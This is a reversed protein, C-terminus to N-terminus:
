RQSQLSPPKRVQAGPATKDAEAISFARSATSYARATAPGRRSSLALAAVVRQEAGNRLGTLHQIYPVTGAVHVVGIAGPAEDEAAEIFYPLDQGLHDELHAHVAREEGLLDNAREIRQADLVRDRHAELAERLQLLLDLLPKQPVTGISVHAEELTIPFRLAPSLRAVEDEDAGTLCFLALPRQLQIEEGGVLVPVLEFHDEGIGRQRRAFDQRQM